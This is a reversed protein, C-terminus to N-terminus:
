ATASSADESIWITAQKESYRTLDEALAKKQEETTGALMKMIQGADPFECLTMVEFPSESGPLDQVKVVRFSTMGSAKFGPTVGAMHKNLYYDMNVNSGKPYGIVLTAPM